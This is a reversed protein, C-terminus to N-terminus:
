TSPKELPDLARYNPHGQRDPAAFFATFWDPRDDEDMKEIELKTLDNLMGKMDEWFNM